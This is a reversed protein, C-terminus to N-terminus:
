VQLNPWIFLHYIMLGLIATQGFAVVLLMTFKIEEITQKRGEKKNWRRYPEPDIYTFIHCFLCIALAATMAGNKTLAGLSMIIVIEIIILEKFLQELKPTYKIMICM